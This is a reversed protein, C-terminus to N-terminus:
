QARKRATLAIVTQNTCGKRSCSSAYWRKNM